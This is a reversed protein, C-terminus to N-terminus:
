QNKTIVLFFNYGSAEAEFEKDASDPIEDALSTLEEETRYTLHWDMWYELCWTADNPWRFNGIVLKGGPKLKQYLYSLLRSASRKTVYDFLGASYILDQQPLLEFIKQEKILKKFGIYMYNAKVPPRPASFLLRSLVSNTYALARQDQDILTFSVKTPGEFGAVFQAIERAPGSGLNMIRCPASDAHAYVAARIKSLIYDKRCCVAVAMPEERVTVQHILKDYLRDGLREENYVQSMLIYDGPYGLPKVFCRYPLPASLLHPLLIAETYRRYLDRPGEKQNKTLDNLKVRFANFRPSFEEEATQLIRAGEQDRREQDTLSALFRDQHSLMKKYTSMLFVVDSIIDKYDTSIDGDLIRSTGEIASLQQITNKIGFIEEADIIGELLEVGVFTGKGQNKAYRVAVDGRYLEKDGFRVRFGEIPDDKSVELVKDTQFALGNIAFNLIEGAGGDFEVVHDITDLMGGLVDKVEYREQRLFIEKGSGGKSEELLIPPNTGSERGGVIDRARPPREDGPDRVSM